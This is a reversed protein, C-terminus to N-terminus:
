TIILKLIGDADHVAFLLETRGARTTIVPLTQVALSFATAQLHLPPKVACCFHTDIWNQHKTFSTKLSVAGDTGLTSSLCATSVTLEIVETALHALCASSITLIARCADNAAAQIATFAGTHVRTTVTHLTTRKITRTTDLAISRLTSFSCSTSHNNSGVSNLATSQKARSTGVASKIATGVATFTIIEEIAIALSAALYKTLV